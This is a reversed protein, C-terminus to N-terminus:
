AFYAAQGTPLKLLVGPLPSCFEDVALKTPRHSPDGYDDFLIVARDSLRPLFNELAALTPRVANLDISLYVVTQPGPPPISFAEPLYGPHFVIREAFRNLNRRARALSAAAYRQPTVAESSHFDEVRMSAWSDYCHMTFDA